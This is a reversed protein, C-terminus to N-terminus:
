NTGIIPFQECFIRKIARAIQGKQEESSPMGGNMNIIFGASLGNKVHNIYYNALEQELQIYPIASLYTPDSYYFKGVQYDKFVVIENKTKDGFGFADFRQPVNKTTNQWDECFYYGKIEGDTHKEPAIKQKPVHYMAVVKKKQYVVEFACENFMVFDKTANRLDNKSIITQEINLGLGYTMQSYSDIIAANTPSNNYGDIIVDYFDNNQGYLVWEKSATEKVEPRIYSALQILEVKNKIM